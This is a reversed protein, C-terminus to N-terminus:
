RASSMAAVTSSSPTLNHHQSQRRPPVRGEHRRSEPRSCQLRRATSRARGHDRQRAGLRRCDADGAEEAPDGVEPEARRAERGLRADVRDLAEHGGIGDAGCDPGGSTRRRSGPARTPSPRTACCCRRSALAATSCVSSPATPVSTREGTTPAGSRAVSSYRSRQDERPSLSCDRFRASSPSNMRRSAGSSAVATM